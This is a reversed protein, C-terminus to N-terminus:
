ALAAAIIERIRMFPLSFHGDEPCFTAQCKPLASACRRGMGPPVIVDREGHWLQVPVQIDQLRFGWPRAYLCGDWAPGRCGSRFAESSGKTLANLLRPDALSKKDAEPLVHQLQAPFLLENERHLGRLAFAGLRSAFSPLARAFLLFCRNALAMGHSNEFADLPSLTCVLVLQSIRNPLLAACAAAYPGGGSVGLISFHPLGLHDALAAVDNPWDILRRRPQFDSLGYGPRDPAIVRLNFEDLVNVVAQAELRSSPWGHFYLVPRGAPPGYEAFGLKRGDPLVVHQNLRDVNFSYRHM